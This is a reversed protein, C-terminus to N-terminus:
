ENLSISLHIPCNYPALSERPTNGEHFRRCRLTHQPEVPLADMPVTSSHLPATSSAAAIMLHSQKTSCCHLVPIVLNCHLVVAASPLLTVICCCHALADASLLLEGICCCAAATYWHLLLWCHHVLADPCCSNFQLNRKCPVVEM